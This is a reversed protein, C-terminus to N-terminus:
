NPIWAQRGMHEGATKWGTPKEYSGSFDLLRIRILDKLMQLSHNLPSVKSAKANQWSIGVEKVLYNGKIALFLIEVDFSFGDIQSRSFIMNAVHSRFCKFGCQTDEFRNIALLKVLKNFTKGMLMRYKPQYRLIRSDKKARSGIAIDHGDELAALLKETEEPPSSLDADCFLIFEGKAAMIGTRVAYGKGRNQEYSILQLEPCKNCYSNVLQYTADTSGDNVVILEFSSFSEKLYTYLQLLTVSLRKEENYAPVIVSIEPKSQNM